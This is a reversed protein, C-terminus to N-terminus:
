PLAKDYSLQDTPQPGPRFFTEEPRGMGPAFEVKQDNRAAPTEPELDLPGARGAQRRGITVRHLVQFQPAQVDDM